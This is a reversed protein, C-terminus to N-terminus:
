ASVGLATVPRLLTYRQPNTCNAHVKMPTM